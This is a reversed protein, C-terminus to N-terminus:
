KWKLAIEKLYKKEGPTLAVFYSAACASVLSTVITAASGWVGFCYVFHKVAFSMGLAIVSVVVLRFM